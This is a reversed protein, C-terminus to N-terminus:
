STCNIVFIIELRTNAHLVYRAESKPLKQFSFRRDPTRSLGESLQSPDVLLLRQFEVFSLSFGPHYHLVCARAVNLDKETTYM